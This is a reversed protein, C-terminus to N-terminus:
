PAPGPRSARGLTYGGAGGGGLGILLAIIERLLDGKEYNLFIWCLLLVFVPVSFLLLFTMWYRQVDLQHQRKGDEGAQDLLKGLQKTDLKDIFSDGPFVEGRFEAMFREVLRPGVQSPPVSESEDPNPAREDSPILDGSM